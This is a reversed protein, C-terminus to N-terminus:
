PLLIFDLMQRMIIEKGGSDTQGIWKLIHEVSHDVLEGLTSYAYVDTILSSHEELVARSQDQGAAYKNLALTFTQAFAAKIAAETGYAQPFQIAMEKLVRLAAERSAMDLAYYLKEAYRVSDATKNSAEDMGTNMAELPHLDSPLMVREMGFLFTRELLRMAQEFSRPIDTLEAVPDGAAVYIETAWPKLEQRWSALMQVANEKTKVTAPLLLGTYIGTEFVVGRGQERYMEALHQKAAAQRAQRDWDPIRLDLLIVQYSGWDLAPLVQHQGHQKAQRTWEDLPSGPEIADRKALNEQVSFLLAEIWDRGHHSAGGWKGNEKEDEISRRVRKLETTM